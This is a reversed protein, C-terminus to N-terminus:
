FSWQSEDGEHFYLKKQEGITTQVNQVYRLVEEPPLEYEKTYIYKIDQILKETEIFEQNDIPSIGLIQATPSGHKNPMFYGVDFMYWGNRLLSDMARIAIVRENENRTREPITMEGYIVSNSINYENADKRALETLKVIFNGAVGRRRYKENALVYSIYTFDEYFKSIAFGLVEGHRLAIILHYKWKIHRPLKTVEKGEEFDTLLNEWLDDIGKKVSHEWIIKMQDRYQEDGPYLEIISFDM